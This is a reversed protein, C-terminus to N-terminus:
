PWERKPGRGWVAEVMESQSLPPDLRYRSERKKKVRGLM